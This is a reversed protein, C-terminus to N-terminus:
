SRRRRRAAIAAIGLGLAAMTGPEPVAEGTIRVMANANTWGTITRGDSQEIIENNNADRYFLNSSSGVLPAVDRLGTALRDDKVGGVKWQVEIGMDTGDGIFSLNAAAYDFTFIFAAVGTTTFTGTNWTVDSVLNSFVSGTAAAGNWDNHIRVQGTTNTYTAAAGVWLAVEIKDIRWQQGTPAASTSFSDAMRNRPVGGTTTVGTNGTITDYIIAAQSSAAFVTIAAVILTKKM